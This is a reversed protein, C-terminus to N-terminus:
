KKRIGEDAVRLSSLRYTKLLSASLDYLGNKLDEVILKKDKGNAIAETLYEHVPYGKVLMYTNVTNFSNRKISEDVLLRVAEERKYAEAAQNYAKTLENREPNAIENPDQDAPAEVLMVEEAAIEYVIEEAEIVGEVVQVEEVRLEATTEAAKEKRKAAENRKLEAEYKKNQEAQRQNKIKMIKKYSLNLPLAPPLERERKELKDKEEKSMRELKVQQVFVLDRRYYEEDKYFEKVVMEQRYKEVKAESSEKDIETLAEKLLALKDPDNEVKQAFLLGPLFVWMILAVWGYTASFSFRKRQLIM